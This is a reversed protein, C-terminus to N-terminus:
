HCINPSCMFVVGSEILWLVTQALLCLRGRLTGFMTHNEKGDEGVSDTVPSSQTMVRVGVSSICLGFECIILYFHFCALSGM